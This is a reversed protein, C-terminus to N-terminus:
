FSLGVSLHLRVTRAAEGYAVDLRMPGIPTRLRAGVGYGYVPKLDAARDAANGADVFTAIGWTPAIWRVVEASGIAYYRGGVTADGIRPGLSDFAYGRVTTDGGTRFLLAIPVDRASRAAVAGGEARFMLLTKTDIPLWAALQVVGRGLAATSVWPPAAGVQANIAYGRAPSLLDDVNRWTRGYDFFLAHADASGANTPMLRSAYFAAGYSVQDREAATKRKWGTTFEDTRLGSIDTHAVNAAYTDSYQPVRPPLTLRVTASQIKAQVDLDTHFRLGKDDINFDDYSLQARYLTDTSFGAGASVKKQPAEILRLHVPAADAQSPDTEVTAQASAFYGSGNLRRLFIQLAEATYPDGPAFTVLNRVLSESYKEVGTIDLAGFRFPPGSDITLSLAASHTEPDVDARSEALRVAAYRDAAFVQVAGTKAAAWDAQRFVAGKPLSWDKRLRAILASGEPGGLAAAGVVFLDVATVTTPEGPDIRLRVTAPTTSRDIESEVKAAFYGQAEAADRAQARADAVLLEFFEPTIEAYSQWRVLDLSREIAAKVPAPAAIEVKYAQMAEEAAALGCRSAVSLGLTLAIAPAM